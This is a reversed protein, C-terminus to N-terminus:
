KRQLNFQIPCACVKRKTKMEKPVEPLSELLAKFTHILQLDSSSNTNSDLNKEPHQNAAHSMVTNPPLDQM